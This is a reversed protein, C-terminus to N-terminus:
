RTKLWKQVGRLCPNRLYPYQIRFWSSSKWVKTWATNCYCSDRDSCPQNWVLHYHYTWSISWSKRHHLFLCVSLPQNQYTPGKIKSTCKIPEPSNIQRFRKIVVQVGKKLFDMSVAFSSNSFLQFLFELLYWVM